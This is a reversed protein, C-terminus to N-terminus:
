NAASYRPARLRNPPPAPCRLVPDGPSETHPSTRIGCPPSQARAPSHPAPSSTPRAYTRQNSPLSDPPPASSPPLHSLSEPLPASHSPSTPHSRRIPRQRSIVPPPRSTQASPPKPPAVASPAALSEPIAKPSPSPNAPSAPIKPTSPRAASPPFTEAPSPSPLAHFSSTPSPPTEPPASSPTPLAALPRFNVREAPEPSATKLKALLPM